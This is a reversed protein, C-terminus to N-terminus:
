EHAANTAEANREAQIVAEEARQANLEARDVAGEFAEMLTPMQGSMAALTLVVQERLYDKM